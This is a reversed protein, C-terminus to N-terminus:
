ITKIKLMFFFYRISRDRSEPRNSDILQGIDPNEPNIKKAKIGKKNM